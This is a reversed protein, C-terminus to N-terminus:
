VSGGLRLIAGVFMLFVLHVPYFAYFSWKVWKPNYGRLGNYRAIFFLACMGWIAYGSGHLSYFCLSFLIVTMLFAARCRVKDGYTLSMSEREKYIYMFLVLAVEWGGYELDILSGGVILLFLLALEIYSKYNKYDFEKVSWKRYIMVALIGFVWSFFINLSFSGNAFIKFCCYPVESVFGFILMYLLYRNINRTHFCGEVILLAFIPMTFRGIARMFVFVPGAHENIHPIGMCLEGLHDIFMFVVALVKLILSSM